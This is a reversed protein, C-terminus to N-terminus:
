WWGGVVVKWEGEIGVWLRVVRGYGRRWGEGGEGDGGVM